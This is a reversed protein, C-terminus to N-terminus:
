LDKVICKFDASGKSFPKISLDTQKLEGPLPFIVIEPNDLVIALKLRRFDDKMKIYDTLIPFSDMSMKLECCVLNIIVGRIQLTTLQDELLYDWSKLIEQVSIKRTLKRM